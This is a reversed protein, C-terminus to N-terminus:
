HLNFGEPWVLYNNIKERLIDLHNKIATQLGYFWCQMWKDM